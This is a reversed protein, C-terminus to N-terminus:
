YTPSKEVEGHAQADRRALAYFFSSLRNLYAKLEISDEIHARVVAREARRTVARTFDFLASHATAGPVVFATPKEITTEIADIVAELTEVQTGTIRKLSGALHAQAIFLVEQVQELEDATEKNHNRIYAKCLGTLSNLEDLTGLAELLSHDKSVCEKTGFLGTNGNDGKRTYLMPNSLRLPHFQSM